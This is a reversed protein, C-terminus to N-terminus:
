RKEELVRVLMETAFNNTGFDSDIPLIGSDKWLQGMRLMICAFRFAAFVEYWPQNRARRGTLEEWRAATDAAPPIGALRPQGLGDSFLRDFYCFWALDQEPDAITAMEWDLVAVCRFDRFIQNAIRSDGWCLAPEAPEPLTRELWAAAYEAAPFPEAGAVWALHRRAEALERAPGPDGDDLFSILVPDVAHVEAMAELGSWWLSARESAAAEHLWGGFTYPPSDAPILGDVRDMVFFPAGLWAPDDEAHRVRPVRVSTHSGLTEMVRREVAFRDDPFVTHSTPKVRAVFREDRGDVRADFLITEHSFGTSPPAEVATVVVDAAGTRERLWAALRARTAEPDRQQALPM